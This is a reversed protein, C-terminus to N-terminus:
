RGHKTVKPTLKEREENEAEIIHVLTNYLDIIM